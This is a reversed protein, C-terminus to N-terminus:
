HAIVGKQHLDRARTALNLATNFGTRTSSECQGCYVTLGELSFEGDNKTTEGCNSCMRKVTASFVSYPKPLGAVESKYELITALKGFPWYSLRRNMQPSYKGKPITGVTELAIRAQFQRAEATIKAVEEYHRLALTQAFRGGRKSLRKLHAIYQQEYQRADLARRYIIEGNPNIVVVTILDELGFAVGMFNEIAVPTQCPIECAVNVFYRDESSILEIRKPNFDKPHWLETEWRQDYPRDTKKWVPRTSLDRVFTAEGWKDFQLPLLLGGKARLQKIESDGFNHLQPGMKPDYNDRLSEEHGGRPFFPLYLYLKGTVGHEYFVFGGQWIIPFDAGITPYSTKEALKPDLMRKAYSLLLDAVKHHIGDKVVAPLAYGRLPSVERLKIVVPLSGAIRKIPEGTVKNLVVHGDEDVPTWWLMQSVPHFRNLCEQAAERVSRLTQDLYRAKTVTLHPRNDWDSRARNRPNRLLPLSMGLTLYISQGEM